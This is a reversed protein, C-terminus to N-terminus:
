EQIVVKKFVPNGPTDIALTYVGMPLGNLNLEIKNLEDQVEVKRVLQGKADYVNVTQINMGTVEVTVDGRSPNPYVKTANLFSVVEMESSKFGYNFQTKVNGTYVNNVEGTEENMSFVYHQGSASTHRILYNNNLNYEISAGEVIFDKGAIKDYVLVNVKKSSKFSAPDLTMSVLQVKNAETTEFAIAQIVNKDSNYAFDLFNHHVAQKSIVRGNNADIRILRHTGTVDRATFVIQNLESIYSLNSIGVESNGTKNFIPDILPNQFVGYFPLASINMSLSNFESKFLVSGNGVNVAIFSIEDQNNGYGNFETTVTFFGYAKSKPLYVGGFVQGQIETSKLRKGTFVSFSELFTRGEIKNLLYFTNLENDFAISNEVVQGDYKNLNESTAAIPDYKLVTFQSPSTNRVAPVSQAMSFFSVSVFALILTSKKMIQLNKDFM